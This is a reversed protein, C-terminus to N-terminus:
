EIPLFCVRLIPLPERSQGHGKILIGFVMGCFFVRRTSNGQSFDQSNQHMTIANELIQIPHFTLDSGRRNGIFDWYICKAMPKWAEWLEFVRSSLFNRYESTNLLVFSEVYHFTVRFKASIVANCLRQPHTLSELHPEGVLSRVVWMTALIKSILLGKDVKQSQCSASIRLSVGNDEM